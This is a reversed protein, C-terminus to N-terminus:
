RYVFGVAPLTQAQGIRVTFYARGSFTREVQGLTELRFLGFDRLVSCSETGQWLSGRSGMVQPMKLQPDLSTPASRSSDLKLAEPDCGAVTHVHM